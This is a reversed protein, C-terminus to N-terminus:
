SLIYFQKELGLETMCQKEYYVHMFIYEITFNLIWYFGTFDLTLELAEMGSPWGLGHTHHPM